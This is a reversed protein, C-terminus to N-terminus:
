SVVILLSVSLVILDWAAKYMCTRIYTCVSYMNDSEPLPTQVVLLVSIYLFSAYMVHLNAYIHTHINPTLLVHVCVRLCACVCARVCVCVCM